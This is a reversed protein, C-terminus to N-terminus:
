KGTRSSSRRASHLVCDGIINLSLLVFYLLRYVIALLLVSIEILDHLITVMLDSPLNPPDEGSTFVDLEEKKLTFQFYQEESKCSLILATISHILRETFSCINLIVWSSNCRGLICHQDLFSFSPVM